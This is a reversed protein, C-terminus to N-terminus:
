KPLVVFRSGTHWDSCAFVGNGLIRDLLDMGEYSISGEKCYMVLESTAFPDVANRARMSDRMLVYGTLLVPVLVVVVVLKRILNQPKPAQPAVASARTPAQVASAKSEVVPSPSPSPAPRVSDPEAIAPSYARGFPKTQKM